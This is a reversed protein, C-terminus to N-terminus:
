TRTSHDSTRCYVRRRTPFRRVREAPPASHTSGPAAPGGVLESRVLIGAAPGRPAGRIGPGRGVVGPDGTLRGPGFQQRRQEVAHVGREAREVRGARDGVPVALGLPDEAPRRALGHATGAERAPRHAAGVRVLHPRPQHRGHVHRPPLHVLERQQALVAAPHQHPGLGGPHAARVPLRGPDVAREALHVGLDIQLPGDRQALRQQLVRGPAHDEDVDVQARRDDVRVRGAREAPAAGGQEATREAFQHDLADLLQLGGQVM